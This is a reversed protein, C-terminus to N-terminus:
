RFWCFSRMKIFARGRRLLSFPVITGILFSVAWFHRLLVSRSHLLQRHLLFQEATKTFSKNEAAAAFLKLQTQNM